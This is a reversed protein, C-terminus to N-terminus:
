VLNLLTSTSILDETGTRVRQQRSGPFELDTNERFRHSRAVGARAGTL